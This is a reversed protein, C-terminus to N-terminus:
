SSFSSVIVSCLDFFRRRVNLAYIVIIVVTVIIAKVAVFEVWGSGPWYWEAALCIVVILSLVQPCSCARPMFLIIKIRTKKVHSFVTSYKQMPWEIENEIKVRMFLVVICFAIYYSRYHVCELVYLWCFSCTCLFTIALSVLEAVKLIGPVTKFYEPHCGIESDEQAPTATVTTPKPEYVSMKKFCRVFLKQM